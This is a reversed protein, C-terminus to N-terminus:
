ETWEVEIVLADTYDDEMGEWEAPSVERTIGNQNIIIPEGNSWNIVIAVDNSGKIRELRKIRNNLKM